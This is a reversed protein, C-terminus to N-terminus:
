TMRHDFPRAADRPLPARDTTRESHGVADATAPHHGPSELPRTPPLGKRAAARDAVPDRRNRRVRVTLASRLVPSVTM